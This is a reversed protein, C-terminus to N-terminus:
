GARGWICGKINQGFCNHGDFDFPAVAKKFPDALSILRVKAATDALDAIV